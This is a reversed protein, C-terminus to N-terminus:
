RLKKFPSRLTKGISKVPNVKKVISGAGKALGTAGDLSGTGITSLGKLAMDPADLIDPLDPYVKLDSWPGAIIIPVNIGLVSIGGKGVLRPNVAYNLMKSPMSTQGSGTVVVHGGIMKLNKNRGVGNKFRYDAVISDFPTEGGQKFGSTQGAHVSRLISAIDVGLLAGDKVKLGAMGQLASMLDFQSMGTSRLDFELNGLGEIKSVGVLDATLPAMDVDKFEGKAKLKAVESRGDVTMAMKMLGDYLDLEVLDAELVGGRLKLNLQAPGTKATKYVVSEINLEADGDVATLISFDITEKSWDSNQENGEGLYKNLDLENINIDATVRDREKGQQRTISGTAILDDVAVKANEFRISDSATTLDGEIEAALEGSSVKLALKAAQGSNLLRPTTLSLSFDADRANWKVKGAIELPATQDALIAQLNVGEFLHNVGNQANSYTLKGDSVDIVSVQVENSGFGAATETGVHDFSWNRNGANDVALNISPKVLRIAEVVVDGGLASLLDVKFEMVEMTAFPEQGFGPLNSLVVQSANVHVDPFISVGLDGEISLTRGTREKITSVMTDRITDASIFMPVTMAAAFVVAVFCVIAIIAKKM